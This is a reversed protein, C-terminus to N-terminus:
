EGKTNNTTVSSLPCYLISNSKVSHITATHIPNGLSDFSLIYNVPYYPINDYYVYLCAPVNIKGKIGDPMKSASQCM